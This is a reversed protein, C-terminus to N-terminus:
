TLRCPGPNPTSTPKTQGAASCRPSIEIKVSKPAPLAAKLRDPPIRTVADIRDTIMSSGKTRSQVRCPPPTTHQTAAAVPTAALACSSMTPGLVALTDGSSLKKAINAAEKPDGRDDEFTLTLKYGKLPGAAIGGKSNIEEIAVEQGRKNGTGYDGYKGTVSDFGSLKIMKKNKDIGDGAAAVMALSCTVFVTLMIVLLKKGMKSRWETAYM